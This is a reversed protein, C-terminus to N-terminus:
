HGSQVLYSGFQVRSEWSGGGLAGFTVRGSDKPDRSWGELQGHLYCVFLVFGFVKLNM